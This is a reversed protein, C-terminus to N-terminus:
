LEPFRYEFTPNYNGKESIFRDLENFYNVPRLRATLNLRKNLKELKDDILHLQALEM